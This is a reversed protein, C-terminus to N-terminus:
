SNQNTIPSRTSAAPAEDRDQQIMSYAQASSLAVSPLSGLASEPQRSGSGPRGVAQAGRGGESGAGPAASFATFGSDAREAAGRQAFWHEAYEVPTLYGLSSHPRETNYHERYRDILARAERLSFFLEMDLCEKRLKDHFSEVYANEWPSGPEIFIPQVASKRLHEKVASAAFEGGNDSRLYQPRGNVLFLFDLSEIIRAANLSRETRLMLCERTFEDLVSLIRVRNGNTTRDAIIDYTWVHNPRDAKMVPMESVQARRKRVKRRLSLGEQKWLRHVRKVNMLRGARRLTAWARRYGWRKHKDAIERIAQVTEEDQQPRKAEYTYGSRAIDVVRCARRISIGGRLLHAVARKRAAPSM